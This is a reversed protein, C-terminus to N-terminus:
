TRQGMFPKWEEVVEGVRVFIQGPSWRPKKPKKLLKMGAEEPTRNDKKQNCNWCAVVCNEWCTTGGNAKPIVHDITMHEREIGDRGPHVGCYQCINRDRKHIHAASYKLGRTPLRAYEWLLLTRPVRLKSRVTKIYPEEDDVELAAWSAFNYLQYDQDVVRAKETFLATLCRKVTTIATVQWVKNLVLVPDELASRRM